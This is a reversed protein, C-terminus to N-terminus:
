ANQAASANTTGPTSSAPEDSATTKPKRGFRKGLDNAATRLAANAFPTKTVTYVTRAAAYAEAGTQMVTDDIQKRLQEVAVRIPGLSDLLQADKRMEELFVPAFLDQHLTAIELGKKVFAQSKDGLKPLGVREDVTLDILFPLKQRISALATVVVQQDETSLTASIRNTDM